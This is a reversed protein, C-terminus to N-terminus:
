LFPDYETQFDTSIPTNELLPFEPKTGKGHPTCPGPVEGLTSPNKDPITHVPQHLCHWLVGHRMALNLAPPLPKTRPKIKVHNPM